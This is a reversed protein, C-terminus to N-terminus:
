EYLAKRVLDDWVPKMDEIIADITSRSVEKTNANHVSQMASRLESAMIELLYFAWRKEIWMPMVYCVMGTVIADIAQEPSLMQAAKQAATLPKPEPLRFEIIKAMSM